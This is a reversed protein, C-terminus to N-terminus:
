LFYLSLRVKYARTGVQRKVKDDVETDSTPEDNEDIDFDSDVLDDAEKEARHVCSILLFILEFLCFVKKKILSLFFTIPLTFFHFSISHNARGILLKAVHIPTTNIM